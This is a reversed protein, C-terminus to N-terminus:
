KMYHRDAFDMYKNWDYLSVGHGGARIHYGIKGEQIATNLPPMTATEVGKLGFLEYVPNANLGSLFEGRPDAWLDRDASAIYVLRPAILAVLMHQDFPLENEKNNYNKFNECFWHPFSNNIREVTEGYKRRSLAAGGCGSNNSIVLSFREDLAGAWLSTKGLRSHGFVAIRNPDVSNDTELYDMARSLGWAWTAISGWANNSRPGLKDFASHVGNLFGDDFDPDIDGYYITALGYGRTIIEEVPWRSSAVGRAAETARNNEVGERRNPLWSSTITIVEDTHITHNGQFNLGLFLPVSAASKKPLYILINMFPGESKGTFNVRVQKRTAKGDLANPDNDYVEFSMNEPKGIPAYGFMHEAFLNLIEPRRINKWLEINKATTGDPLTLPDPLNFNPVRNEYYNAESNRKSLTDILGQNAKWSGKESYEQALLSPYLNMVLMGIILLIHKKLIKM